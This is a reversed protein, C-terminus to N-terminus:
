FMAIWVYVLPCGCITYACQISEIQKKVRAYRDKWLHSRPLFHVCLDSVASHPMKDPDINNAKFVPFEKM